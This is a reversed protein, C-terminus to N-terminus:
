FSALFNARVPLWNSSFLLNSISKEHATVSQESNGSFQHSVYAHLYRDGYFSINTAASIPFKMPKRARSHSVSTQIPESLTSDALKTEIEITGPRAYAMCFFFFLNGEPMYGPRRVAYSFPKPQYQMAFLRSNHYVMYKSFDASTVEKGIASM